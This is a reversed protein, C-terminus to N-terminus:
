RVPRIRFTKSGATCQASNQVTNRRATTHTDFHCHAGGFMVIVVCACMYRPDGEQDNVPQEVVERADQCVRPGVRAVRVPPKDNLCALFAMNRNEIEVLVTLHITEVARPDLLSTRRAAPPLRARLLRSVPAYARRPKVASWKIPAVALMRQGGLCGSRVVIMDRFFENEVHIVVTRPHEVHDAVGVVAVEHEKQEPDCGSADIADHDRELGEKCECPRRRVSRTPPWDVFM